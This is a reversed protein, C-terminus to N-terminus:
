AVPAAVHDSGLNHVVTPDCYYSSPICCLDNYKKRAIGYAADVLSSTADSLFLAYGMLSWTKAQLFLNIERFRRCGEPQEQLILLSGKEQNSSAVCSFSNVAESLLNHLEGDLLSSNRAVQEQLLRENFMELFVRGRKYMILVLIFRITQIQGGQPAQNGLLVDEWSWDQANILEWATEILSIAQELDKLIECAVVANHIAILTTGLVWESTMGSSLFVNDENDAINKSPVHAFMLIVECQDQPTVLQSICTNKEQQAILIEEQISMRQTANSVVIKLLKESALAFHLLAESNRGTLLLDVGVNNILCAAGAELRIAPIFNDAM